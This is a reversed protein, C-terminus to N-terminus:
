LLKWGDEKDFGIWYRKNMFINASGEKFDISYQRSLYRTAGADVGAASSGTWPGDM